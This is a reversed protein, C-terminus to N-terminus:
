EHNSIGNSAEEEGDGWIKHDEVEHSEEQSEGLREAYDISRDPDVLERWSAWVGFPHGEEMAESDDSDYDAVYKSCYYNCVESLLQSPPKSEHYLTPEHYQNAEAEQASVIFHDVYEDSHSSLSLLLLLLWEPLLRNWISV